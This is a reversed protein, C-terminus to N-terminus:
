YMIMFAHHVRLCVKTDGTLKNVYCYLPDGEKVQQGIAPLGDDDLSEHLKPTAASANGLADLARNTFQLKTQSACLTFLHKCYSCATCIPADASSV